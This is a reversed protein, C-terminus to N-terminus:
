EKLATRAIQAFRFAQPRGDEESSYGNAIQRLAAELRAIRAEREDLIRNGIAAIADAATGAM